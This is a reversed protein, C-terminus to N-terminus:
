YAGGRRGEYECDNTLYVGGSAIRASSKASLRRCLRNPLVVCARGFRSTPATDRSSVLFGSRRYSYGSAERHKGKKAFSNPGLEDLLSDRSDDDFYFNYSGPETGSGFAITKGEFEPHEHASQDILQNTQETLKKAEDALGLSSSVIGNQDQWSTLWPEDPYGVIPAIQRRM